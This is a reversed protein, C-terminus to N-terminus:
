KKVLGHDICVDIKDKLEKTKISVTVVRPINDILYYRSINRYRELERRNIILWDTIKYGDDLNGKIYGEELAYDITEEFMDSTKDNIFGRNELDECFLM